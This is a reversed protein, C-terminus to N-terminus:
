FHKSAFIPKSVAALSGEFMDKNSYTNMGLNRSAFFAVLMYCLESVPWTVGDEGCSWVSGDVSALGYVSGEHADEMVNIRKGDM